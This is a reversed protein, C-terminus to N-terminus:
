NCVENYRIAKGPNGGIVLHDEVDRIIVAGAGITCYNGIKLNNKVSANIGFFNNNGVEINGAITSSASFWNYNGIAADHCIYSGGYFLNGNGIKSYPEIVANPMVINGIGFEVGIMVSLPHVYSVLSFGYQTVCKDIKARNILNGSYGVCNIIGTKNNQEHLKEFSVLPFGECSDNKIYVGNMTFGCLNYREDNKLYLSLMRAISNTGFLFIDTM